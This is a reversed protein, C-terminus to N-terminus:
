GKKLLKRIPETKTSLNEVFKALYQVSELFSRTEKVTKPPKIKLVADTRTNKPKVGNEDILFGCWGSEKEFMKTKEVNARYGHEELRQLVKKLETEHEEISGRTVVIIDDQWAQAIGDLVRDIKAQFVVPMDALGYFGKKFRYHGTSTGGVIAAVCHKASESHLKIQGFAYKLDITSIVLPKGTGLSIKISIQDVLEALIPMQMTKHIIQKNLEVSDIAIKVSGDSKKSIVVPSVFTDEGIEALKEVHGGDILKRLEAEVAKQMLIPVRRGKQQKVEMSPKFQVNYVFDKVTHSSVFIKNFKKALDSKKKTVESETASDNNEPDVRQVTEVEYRVSRQILSLGLKDFSDMGLIPKTATEVELWIIESSNGNLETELKYRNTKPIPRGNVDAFKRSSEQRIVKKPKIANTLRRPLITIPSGTDLIARTKTGNLRITFEFENGSRSIAKGKQSVRRIPLKESEVETIQEISESETTSVADSTSTESESRSSSAEIKKVKEKKAKVERCM